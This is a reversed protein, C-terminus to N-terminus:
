VTARGNMRRWMAFMLIGLIGTLVLIVTPPLPVSGGPPTNIISPAGLYSILNQILTQSSADAFSQLFNVDFVVILTGGPANTLTGPGFAIATGLGGADKTIFSGTGPTTTGGGLLYTMTSVANPGTFPAQVNQTAQPTALTLSGGGAQLVFAVISNNRAVFGLNEGVVFLSGGNQLFTLYAADDTPTLPTTNNFRIDWVQKYTPALPGAPVGVNNTVTYGAATLKAALNGLADSETGVTGDQVILANVAWSASPFVLLLVSVIGSLLFRSCWIRTM